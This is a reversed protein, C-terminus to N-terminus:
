SLQNKKANTSKFPAVTCLIFLLVKTRAEKLRAGFAAGLFFFEVFLDGM